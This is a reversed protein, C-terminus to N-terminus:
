REFDAFFGNAHHSSVVAIHRMRGEREARGARDIQDTGPGAVGLQERALGQTEQTFRIHDHVVVEHGGLDHLFPPPKQQGCRVMSLM